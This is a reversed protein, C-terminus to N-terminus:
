QVFQKWHKRIARGFLDFKLDVRFHHGFDVFTAARLRFRKQGVGGGARGEAAEAPWVYSCATTAARNTYRM